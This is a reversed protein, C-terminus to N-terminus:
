LVRAVSAVGFIECCIIWAICRAGCTEEIINQEPKKDTQKWHKPLRLTKNSRGYSDYYYDDYFAVWHEGGEKITKTNCIMSEGKKLKKLMENYPFTGRYNKIGKMTHNIESDWM